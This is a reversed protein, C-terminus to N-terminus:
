LVREEIRLAAGLSRFFRQQHAVENLEPVLSLDFVKALDLEEVQMYLNTALHAHLGCPPMPGLVLKAVTIFHFQRDFHDLSRQLELMIREFARERRELDVEHVQELTVDIRRSLYLEGNYTVTLLGGEDTFALMAVGRGEPALLASINRQATDPIDIADLEVGAGVFLAQRAEIVSNRAAVAFMSHTRGAVSADPPIDLVDITADDVHFDLMDKLRWRVAVKLEEPQVNPAEVALMQYEAVSLFTSCRFRAAQVERALKELADVSKGAASPYFKAVTVQPAKADAHRLSAAHVGDADFGIALWGAGKVKKGFLGM